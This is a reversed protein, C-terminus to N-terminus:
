TLGIGMSLVSPVMKDGLLPVHEFDLVDLVGLFVSIVLFSYKKIPLM